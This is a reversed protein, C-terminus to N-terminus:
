CKEKEETKELIRDIVDNVCKQFQAPCSTGKDGCEIDDFYALRRGYIMRGNMLRAIAKLNAACGGDFEIDELCFSVCMRGSASIYSYARITFTVGKCCTGDFRCMVKHLQDDNM